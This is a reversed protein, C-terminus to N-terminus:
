FILGHLAASWRRERTQGVVEPAAGGQEPQAARQEKARAGARAIEEAASRGGARAAARRGGESRVGGDGVLRALVGGVGERARGLRQFGDFGHLGGRAGRRDDPRVMEAGVRVVGALEQRIDGVAECGAAQLDRGADGRIEGRRLGAFIGREPGARVKGGLAGGGSAGDDGDFLVGRLGDEVPLGEVDAFLGRQLEVLGGAARVFALPDGEVFDGVGAARGRLDEPADLAVALGVDDVLVADEKAAARLHVEPREGGRRQRDVVVEDLLAQEVVAVRLEKEGREVYGAARVARRIEGRGRRERGIAAVAVHHHFRARLQAAGRTGVAVAAPDHEDARIDAVFSGDGRRGPLGNEGRAQLDRDGRVGAVVRAQAAEVGPDSRDPVVGARRRVAADDGRGGAARQHGAAAHVLEARDLAGGGDREVPANVEEGAVPGHAIRIEVDAGASRLEKVLVGAHHFEPHATGRPDQRVIGPRRRYRARAQRFFRLDVGLAPGDMQALVRRHQGRVRIDGKARPDPRVHIHIVVPRGEAGIARHLRPQGAEVGPRGLPKKVRTSLDIEVAPREEAHRPARIHRHRELLVNEIQFKASRLQRIRRQLPRARDAAHAQRHVDAPRADIAPAEPHPRREAVDGPGRPQDQAIRGLERRHAAIDAQPGAGRDHHQLVGCHINRAAKKLVFRADHLRAPQQLNPSKHVDVVGSWVLHILPNVGALERLAVPFVADRLGEHGRPHGTPVVLRRIDLSGVAARERQRGRAHREVPFQAACGCRALPLARERGREAPERQGEFRFFDENRRAAGVRKEQGVGRRRGGHDKGALRLGALRSGKRQHPILRCRQALLAERRDGEGWRQQIFLAEAVQRHPIRVSIDRHRFPAPQGRRRQTRGRQRARVDRDRAFHGRRAPRQSEEGVIDRRDDGRLERQELRQVRSRSRHSTAPHDRQLGAPPQARRTQNHVIATEIRQGEGLRKDQGAAADRDVRQARLEARTPHEINRAPHRHARPTDHTIARAAAEDHPRAAIGAKDRDEAPRERQTGRERTVGPSFAPRQGQLGTHDLDAAARQRGRRQDQLRVKEALTTEGAVRETADARGARSGGNGPDADGGADPDLRHGFAPQGDSRTRFAHRQM